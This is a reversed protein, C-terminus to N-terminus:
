AHGEPPRQYPASLAARVKALLDDVHATTVRDPARARLSSELSGRLALLDAHALATADDPTGEPPSLALGILTRAYADQLNRRLLPITRAPRNHLERFVSANMWDFLDALTMAHPDTTETPGAVLRQLVLPQFMQALARDQQQGIREVLNLDHRPPPAYAWEPLNGYGPFGVYGYGAWESYTLHSLLAPSVPLPNAAFLYRDLLEFARRQEARPVPVIPPEAHPDGRHARSLYQGGIFHTPLQACADYRGLLTRFADREGEYADNQHPLRRNLTAMLGVTMKQQVACWGLPDNTLDGQESRPDAAHGDGWSVDEDSAYRYKPDSWGSALANLTPLEQQPTRAGPVRAYAWRILHYDYPGLVTQAYDGQAYNRPWLNTPAYEMVTSAIGYRSTFAKDQLEKATYAMSGIFNHQMGLNHGTEHLITSMWTDDLFKQPMPDTDRGYRVPDIVYTWERQAGSPVDASILIGTRFEQGTRPDYLTQSDAGFSAQYETVWRLVNYRIDDPDWNPDDPQDRVAIANSIGIKEFAANWALVAARIAPRHQEPITNSMYFVLQHKAPSLPKTPDSPQMNWRVIYRLSRDLVRDNSFQLYIDDYIGMRDDALRPMYDGDHPPDAINYTVKMQLHRPDPLADAIRQDESTWAQDAELVVNEPFAKTPGFYSHERDLTYPTTHPQAQLNQQLVAKLNLQDDLFPSADVIVAGTSANTAVVPALGVISRAFSQDIARTAASGPGAVFYPNPWLIAVADGAREFRVLETPLHDTNGWVVGQGGVGSSPVITQIFDHDLQAAALELYVKGDKHWITLLGRQAEAGKVFTVYPAPGGGGSDGSAAPAANAPTWALLAVFAIAGLVSRLM